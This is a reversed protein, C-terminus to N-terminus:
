VNYHVLGSVQMIIIIFQLNIPLNTYRIVVNGCPKAPFQSKFTPVFSTLVTFEICYHEGEPQSKNSHRKSCYFIDTTCTHGKLMGSVFVHIHKHTRKVETKIYFYTHMYKPSFYVFIPNKFNRSIYKLFHNIFIKLKKYIHIYIYTIHHMNDYM